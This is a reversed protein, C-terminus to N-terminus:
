KCPLCVLRQRDLDIPELPQHLWCKKDVVDISLQLLDLAPSLLDFCRKLEDGPHTMLLVLYAFPGVGIVRSM